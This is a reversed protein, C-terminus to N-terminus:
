RASVDRRPKGISQDKQSYCRIRSKRNIFQKAGAEVVKVAVGAKVKVAVAVRTAVAVAAVRAVAATDAAAAANDAAAAGTIGTEAAGPGTAMPAITAATMSDAM